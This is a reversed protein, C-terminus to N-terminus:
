TTFVRPKVGARVAIGELEKYLQVVAPIRAELDSKAARAEDRAREANVRRTTEAVLAGRM